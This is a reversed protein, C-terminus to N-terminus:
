GTGGPVQPFYKGFIVSVQPVLVSFIRSFIAINHPFVSFASIYPFLPATGLVIGTTCHLWQDVLSDYSM